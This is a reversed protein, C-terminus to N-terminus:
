HFLDRGRNQRYSTQSLDGFNGWDSPSYLKLSDDLLYGKALDQKKKGAAVSM